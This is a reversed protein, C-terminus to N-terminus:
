LILACHPLTIIGKHGDKKDWKYDGRNWCYHPNWPYPKPFPYPKPLPLPYPKGYDPAITLGGTTHAKEEAKLDQFNDLNEIVLNHKNM